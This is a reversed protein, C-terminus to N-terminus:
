KSDIVINQFKIGTSDMSTFLTDPLVEKKNCSVFTILAAIACAYFQWILSIRGMPNNKLERRM